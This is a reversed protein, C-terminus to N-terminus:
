GQKFGELISQIFYWSRAMIDRWDSVRTSEMNGNDLKDAAPGTVKNTELRSSQREPNLEEYWRM